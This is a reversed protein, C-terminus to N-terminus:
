LVVELRPTASDVVEGMRRAHGVGADQLSRVCADAQLAPLAILLGGATQPDYLLPELDAPPERSWKVQGELAAQNPKTSATTVGAAVLSPARPYIPVANWDIRMAIGPTGRVMGMAHGALGFGTVDTAAHTEYKLMVTCAAANLTAMIACCALLEEAPVVGKRAGNIILGTGIPKTLILADGPHAGVNRIIRAPDIAGVVALGYLLEQNRVTHGGLIASGAEAVKSAGGELIERAVPAELAKPFGCLNLAAVPRGGMAYVDSLSNSAAVQGYVFPDDAVPTIFDATLVIGLDPRLGYVGADDGTEVGVLVEPGQLKALGAMM